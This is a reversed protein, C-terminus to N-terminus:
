SQKFFFDWWKQYNARKDEQKQESEKPREEPLIVVVEEGEKQLGLRERAIKERYSPSQYYLIKDAYEKNSKRLEEIEVKLAAVEKNVKYNQYLVRSVSFIVYVVLILILIRSWIKNEV